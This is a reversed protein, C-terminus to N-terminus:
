IGYKNAFYQYLGRLDRGSLLKDFTVIEFIEGGYFDGTGNQSGIFGVNDAGGIIGGIVISRSTGNWQLGMGQAGNANIEKLYSIILPQDHNKHQPYFGIQTTGRIGFYAGDTVEFIFLFSSALSTRMMLPCSTAVTMGTTGKMVCFISYGNALTLSAGAAAISMFDNVGDFLVSPKGNLRNTKYLPQNAGVAQVADFGNGSQDTFTALPTGDAVVPLADADFHTISDGIQAPTLEEAGGNITVTVAPGVATALVGSGVFDISTAAATQQVGEDLIELDSGPGPPGPPGVAGAAGDAGPPGAPGVGGVLPIVRAFYCALGEGAIRPYGPFPTGDLDCPLTWVVQNNVCTKTLSGFFSLIFNNLASALPEKAPDCKPPCPHSM